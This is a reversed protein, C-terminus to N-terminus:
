FDAHALYHLLNASGASTGAGTVFTFSLINTGADSIAVGSCDVAVSNNRPQINAAFPNYLTITPAIRMDVPLIVTHGAESSSAGITQAWELCNAGSGVNQVPKVGLAFSKKCYRQNLLFEDTFQLIEIPTAASGVEFQIDTIDLTANLTAMLNTTGAPGFLNGAQWGAVGIGNAGFGLFWNVQVGITTDVAWVGNVDGLFSFSFYQAINAAALVYTGIYSRTGANNVLRFAYTGPVSSQAIFSFSVTKAGPTGFFLEQCNMGEIVHRIAYSSAAAPAADITTVKARLFNLSSPGAIAVGTALKQLTFTGAAATGVGAFRDACYTATAAINGTVTGEQRQDFLMRGNIIKNRRFFNMGSGGPFALGAIYAKLSRFEAQATEALIADTPQTIDAPNPVYAM